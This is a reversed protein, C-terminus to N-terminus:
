CNGDTLALEVRSHEEAIKLKCMTDSFGMNDTAHTGAQIARYMHWHSAVVCHLIAHLCCITLSLDKM